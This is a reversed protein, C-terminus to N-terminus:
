TCSIGSLKVIDLTHIHMKMRDYDTTTSAQKPAKFYLCFTKQIDVTGTSMLHRIVYQDM